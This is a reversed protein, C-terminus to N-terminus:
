QTSTSSQGYSSASLKLYEVEELTDTRDLIANRHPFRGFKQVIEYHHKAYSEVHLFYDRNREDAEETLQQFIQLSLEQYDRNESHMLPLYFFQREIPFLERDFGAEIGKLTLEEALRHFQFAQPTGRFINRPFQDFLIILALMGKPSKELEEYVGSSALLLDNGFAEDITQDFAENGNFWRKAKEADWEYSNELQGFWFSLIEDQRSIIESDLQSYVSEDARLSCPFFAALSLGLTLLLRRM